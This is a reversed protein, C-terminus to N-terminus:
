KVALKLGCGNVLPNGAHFGHMQKTYQLSLCGINQMTNWNSTCVFGYNPSQLAM